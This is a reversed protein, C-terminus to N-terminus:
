LKHDHTHNDNRTTHNHPQREEHNAAWTNKNAIKNKIKYEFLGRGYIPFSLLRTIKNSKVRSSRSVWECFTVTSIISDYEEDGRTHSGEALVRRFILLFCLLVTRELPLNSTCQSVQKICHRMITMVTRLDILFARWDRAHNEHTM